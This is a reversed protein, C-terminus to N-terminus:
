RRVTLSLIFLALLCVVIAGGSPIDYLFSLVIGSYVAALSVAVSTLITLKFNLKFQMATVVPIVILAGLLLIGVIKMALAIVTATMAMLVFTIKKTALGGATALDEDFATLFLEKYLALVTSLVLVGLVFMVWVDTTSVTSISGFLFGLANINLNEGVSLVITAVALSGSLFIALASDAFVGRKKRLSEIVVISFVSVALATLIPNYGFLLGLAVGALSVHALTDPILAYRKMILFVGVLPSIVAVITGALLARQMFSYQFIDLLAEM